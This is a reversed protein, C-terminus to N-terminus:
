NSRGTVYFGAWYYPHHHQLDADRLFVKQANNMASPVPERDSLSAFFGAMLRVTSDADVDWHSAVVSPIGKGLFVHVLNNTDLLGYEGAAGTSCAALVALRLRPLKQRSLEEATVSSTPSLMLATGTGHREGHGFFYFTDSKALARLMEPSDTTEGELLTAKSFPHLIAQGPLANLLLHSDSKGIPTPKRLMEEMLMGPSYEIKNREAFYWGEPSRLAQMPLKQLPQDLEFAVTQSEGIEPLVPQVLLGFLREGQEHVDELLSNKDACRNGFNESLSELEPRKLEIWKSRIRKNGVVWVHLRDKFSAYVVHMERDRPIEIALIKRQLEEWSTAGMPPNKPQSDLLSRTKSWEWLRWADDVRNQELWVRALERYLEATKAAWKLRNDVSKLTSLSAEAIEIGLKYEAEADDLRRLQQLVKGKVRRFDLLDLKNTEKLLSQGPALTELALEAKGLNSQCEALTIKAALKYQDKTPGDPASEFISEAHKAASEAASDEQMATLISALHLYLAGLIFPDHHDPEIVKERIAIVRLFLPEAANWYEEQEACQALVSYFQFLREAPYTGGWFDGLGRVEQPWSTDCSPGLPRRIGPAIGLIRFTLIPFQFRRALALSKELSAEIKTEDLNGAFPLCVARELAIQAELWHYSSHELVSDLRDASSLCHVGDQKRQYAYVEEFGALMEGPVNHHQAFLRSAMQATTLADTTGDDQNSKLAASLASVAPLDDPGLQQLFDKFWPDSHREEFLDALKRTAQGSNGAPNKIADALWAILGVALCEESNQRVVPNSFNSLFFSPDRFEACVQAKLSPLHEKAKERRARAENSWPSTSDTELYKDWTPVALDWMNSKEYAIALDFLAVSEQDKSLKPNKLVKALLNISRSLNPTKEEPPNLGPTGPAKPEPLSDHEFFSVALDIELSPDNLGKLQAQRFAEEAKAANAPNKLLTLRGQFQLWRPDPKRESQLKDALSSWAKLLAPRNLDESENKPGLTHAPKQYIGYDVSPLRMETTRREAYAAAVRRNENNLEVGNVIAPGRVIGTGVVLVAAAAGGIAQLKAAAWWDDLQRWFPVREARPFSNRVIERAKKRQWNPQSSPLQEILAEIEPSLEESFEQLYRNLVPGCHDCQAAHQLVHAATEPSAIEAAVEQLDGEGPCEPYPDPRMGNTELNALQTRQWQLLLGLCFECESLHTEIEEPCGGPSRGACEQIQDDGLHGPHRNVREENNMSTLAAILGIWKL